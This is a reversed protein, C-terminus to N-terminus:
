QLWWGTLLGAVFATGSTTAIAVLALQLWHLLERRQTPTGLRASM